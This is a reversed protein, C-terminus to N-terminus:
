KEEQMELIIEKLVAIQAKLRQNENKLRTTEDEENYIGEREKVLTVDKELMNGRGTLLWHFNIGAMKTFLTGYNINGRKRWSSIAKPTINLTDALQSDSRLHLALKARDLVDNVSLYNNEANPVKESSM